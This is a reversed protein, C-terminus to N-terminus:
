AFAGILSSSSFINEEDFGFTEWELSRFDPPCLTEELIVQNRNKKERSHLPKTSPDRKFFPLITALSHATHPLVFTIPFWILWEWLTLLLANRGLRCGTLANILPAAFRNCTQVRQM